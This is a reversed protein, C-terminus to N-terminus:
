FAEVAPMRHRRLRRGLESLHEERAGQRLVDAVMELLREVAERVVVEPGQFGILDELEDELLVLPGSITWPIPRARAFATWCSPMPSSRAISPGLRAFARRRSSKRYRQRRGHARTPSMTRSRDM